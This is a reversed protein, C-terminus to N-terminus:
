FYIWILNKQHHTWFDADDYDSLKNFKALQNRFQQRRRRNSEDKLSQNCSNNWGTDRSLTGKWDKHHKLEEDYAEQISMGHKLGSAIAFGPNFKPQDGKTRRITKSM